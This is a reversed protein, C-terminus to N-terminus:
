GNKHRRKLFGNKFIHDNTKNNNLLKFEKDMESTLGKDLSYYAFIKEWISPQRKMRDITEKAM